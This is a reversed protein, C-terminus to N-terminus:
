WKPVVALSPRFGHPPATFSVLQSHQSDKQDTGPAVGDEAWRHRLPQHVVEHGHPWWNCIIGEGFKGLILVLDRAGQRLVATTIASWRTRVMLVTRLWMELMQVLNWTASRVWAIICARSAPM